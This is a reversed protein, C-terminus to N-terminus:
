LARSWRVCIRRRLFLQQQVLAAATGLVLLIARRGIQQLPWGGAEPSRGIM